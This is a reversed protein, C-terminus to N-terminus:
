PNEGYIFTRARTAMVRWDAARALLIRWVPQRDARATWAAIGVFTLLYSVASSIAAGIASYRPILVLNLGINVVVGLAQGVSVAHARGTQVLYPSIIQVLSMGVVGPLLIWLLVTAERFRAGYLLPVIVTGALGALLAVLVALPVMLRVARAHLGGSTGVQRSFLTASVSGTVFYLMEALATAVSYIGLAASSGLIGLLVYDARAQLRDAIRGPWAALGQRVLASWDGRPLNFRWGVAVAGGLAALGVAGIQVAPIARIASDSNAGLALVVLGYGVLVLGRRVVRLKGFLVPRGVSMALMAALQFMGDVPIFGLSLYVALELEPPVGRFLLSRAGLVNFALVLIILATVPMSLVLAKSFVVRLRDRDSASAHNLAYDQGFLGLVALIAPTVTVIAVIGKGVPGFWRAVAVDTVFIVGVLVLRYFLVLSSDRLFSM